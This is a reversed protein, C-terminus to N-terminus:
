FPIDRPTLRRPPVAFGSCDSPRTLISTRNGAQTGRGDSLTHSFERGIVAGIQAVEKAPGLRDLRAMLSAHLSAPVALTPSPIAAVVRDIALEGEAELVAKTMEEVFLPIGDTRELIDQRIGAPLPKNATVRDIM